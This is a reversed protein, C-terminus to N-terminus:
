DPEGAAVTARATVPETFTKLWREAEAVWAPDRPLLGFMANQEVNPSLLAFAIRALSRLDGRAAAMAYHRVAPGRREARLATWAARRHMAAIDVPINYRRALRRPEAVMSDVDPAINMQHFRYAVHPRCVCAPRGTSALRLWLDWDETRRLDPDFGGIAALLDARVLVNSGGSSLPNRRRLTRMVEHPSLPPTGSLVRLTDDVNVDGSYVWGVRADEAIALQAALKGPSWLDDDDCFAIWDGRAAAIGRNRAASVGSPHATRIVRVRPDASAAAAATEDTSGDDVVVIEIDVAQQACVSRLTRGLLSARNRTPVVVSVLTM